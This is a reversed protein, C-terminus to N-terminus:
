EAPKASSTNLRKVTQDSLRFWKGNTFGVDAQGQFGFNAEEFSSSDINIPYLVILSKRAPSYESPKM